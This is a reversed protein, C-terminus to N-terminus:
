AGSEAAPAGPDEAVLWSVRPGEKLDRVDYLDAFPEYRTPYAKYLWQGPKGPSPVRRGEVLPFDVLFVVLEEAVGRGYGIAVERDEEVHHRYLVVDHYADLGFPRRRPQRVPRASATSNPAHAPRESGELAEDDLGPGDLTSEDIEPSADEIALFAGCARCRGWHPHTRGIHEPGAGCAPCFGGPQVPGRGVQLWIYRNPEYRDRVARAVLGVESAKQGLGRRLAYV